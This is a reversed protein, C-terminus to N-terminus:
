PIIRDGRGVEFLHTGVARIGGLLAIQWLGDM